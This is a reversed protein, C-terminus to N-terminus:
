KTHVEGYPSPVGGTGIATLAGADFLQKGFARDFSVEVPIMKIIENLDFNVPSIAGRGVYKSRSSKLGNLIDCIEAKVNQLVFFADQNGNRWCQFMKGADQTPDIGFAVTRFNMSWGDSNGEQLAQSEQRSTSENKQQSSATAIAWNDSENLSWNTTFASDYYMGDPDIGRLRTKQDAVGFTSARGGGYTGTLTDGISKGVMTGIANTTTLSRSRNTNYGIQKVVTQDWGPRLFVESTDIPYAARDGECGFPVFYMVSAEVMNTLGQLELRIYFSKSKCEDQRYLWLVGYQDMHMWISQMNTNREFCNNLQKILDHRIVEVYAPNVDIVYEGVQTVEALWGQLACNRVQRMYVEKSLPVIYQSRFSTISNVHPDPEKIVLDSTLCKAIEVIEEINKQVPLLVNRDLWAIRDRHLSSSIQQLANKLQHAERYENKLQKLFDAAGRLVPECQERLLKLQPARSRIFRKEVM